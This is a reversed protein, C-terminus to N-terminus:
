KLEISEIGIALLRDDDSTIGLQSPRIPNLLQIDITLVSNSLDVGNLPVEFINGHWQQLSLDAVKTGNVWM